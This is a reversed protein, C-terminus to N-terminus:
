PEARLPWGGRYDELVWLRRVAVTDRGSLLPVLAGRSVTVAALTLAIAMAFRTTWDTTRTM